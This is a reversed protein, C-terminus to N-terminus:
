QKNKCCKQRRKYTRTSNVPSGSVPNVTVRESYPVEKMHGGETSEVEQCRTM